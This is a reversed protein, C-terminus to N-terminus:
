RLACDTLVVLLDIQYKLDLPVTYLSFTYETL